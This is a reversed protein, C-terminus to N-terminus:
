WIWAFCVCLLIITYSVILLLLVVCVELRKWELEFKRKEALSEVAKMEAEAEAVMGKAKNSASKLTAQSALIAVEAEKEARTRGVTCGFLFFCSVVCVILGLGVFRDGMHM